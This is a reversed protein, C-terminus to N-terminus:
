YSTRVITGLSPFRSIFVLNLGNMFCTEFIGVLRLFFSRAGFFIRGRVMTALKHDFTENPKKKGYTHADPSRSNKTLKRVLLERKRDGFPFSVKTELSLTDLLARRISSCLPIPNLYFSKPECLFFLQM